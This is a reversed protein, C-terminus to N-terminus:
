FLEVNSGLGAAPLETQGGDGGPHPAAQRHLFRQHVDRESMMTYRDRLALLMGDGGGGQGAAGCERSMAGLEGLVPEVLELFQRRIDFGALTAQMETGLEAVERGIAAIRGDFTESGAQLQGVLIRAEALLADLDAERDDGQQDHADLAAAQDSVLRCGDAMAAAYRGAEEALAQISGAIVTLGAGRQAGHAASVAANQALLQMEEGLQEVEGTLAAVDRVAQCVAFIAQGAALHATRVRELCGAVAQLSPAVRACQANSGVFLAASADVALEGAAGAMAQLNLGLREVAECFETVAWSLQDHQLLCIDGAASVAGREALLAAQLGDLAKAVHQLRQRTIDQFQLAAVQEGFSEALEACRQRLRDAHDMTRVCQASVKELLLRTQRIEADAECLPGKQAQGEIATARCRLEALAECRGAITELKEQMLRSLQELELGLVTAGHGHNRAAELRTAVRLAQLTKVVKALNRLPAALAVAHLELAQLMACIQQSRDRAERLWLASRETLLQLRAVTREASEGEAAHLAQEVMATLSLSRRHGAGVQGGIQLFVQETLCDVGALRESM